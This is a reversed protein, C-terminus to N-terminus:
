HRADSAVAVDIGRMSAQGNRKFVSRSRSGMRRDCSWHGPPKKTSTSTCAVGVCGNQSSRVSTLRSNPLCTSTRDFAQSSFTSIHRCESVPSVTRRFGVAAAVIPPVTPRNPQARFPSSSLSATGVASPMTSEQRCIRGGAGGGYEGGEEGGGRGGGKTGGGLGESGGGEGADGGGGGIDGGGGM